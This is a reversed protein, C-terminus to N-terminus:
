LFANVQSVLVPNEAQMSQESEPHSQTETETHTLHPPHAPESARQGETHTIEILFFTRPSFVCSTTCQSDQPRTSHDERCTSFIGGKSCYLKKPLYGSLIKKGNHAFYVLYKGHMGDIIDPTPHKHAKGLQFQADYFWYQVLVLTAHPRWEGAEQLCTLGVNDLPILQM